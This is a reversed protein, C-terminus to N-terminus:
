CLSSDRESMRRRFSLDLARNMLAISVREMKQGYINRAEDCKIVLILPDGQVETLTSTPFSRQMTDMLLSAMGIVHALGM